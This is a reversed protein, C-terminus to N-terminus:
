FISFIRAIARTLQVLLPGVVVGLCGLLPLLRFVSFAVPRGAAQTRVLARQLNQLQRSGEEMAGALSTAGIDQAHILVSILTDAEPLNIAKRLHELAMVPGDPWMELCRDIDRALRPTMASAGRLSQAMTYGSRLHLDVMLYLVATERLKRAKIAYRRMFLYLWALVLGAVLGFVLGKIGGQGSSLLVATLVGGAAGALYVRDRDDRTAKEAASAVLGAFSSLDPKNM